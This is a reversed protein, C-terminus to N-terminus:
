KSELLASGVCRVGFSYIRSDPSSALRQSVRSIRAERNWSGGRLVRSSGGPPGQPDQKVGESYYALKYWDQTWEMANGLMDYLGWANPKKLEVPHVTNGNTRALEQLPQMENPIAKPDLASEGSNGVWWAVEDVSGHRSESISARAAYEWEAETPLRLGTWECYSKAEDWTIAVIPNRDRGNSPVRRPFFAGTVESYKRYAGVTVESQGIWFGKSITM